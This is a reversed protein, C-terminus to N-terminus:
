FLLPQEDDAHSRTIRADDWGMAEALKAELVILAKTRIQCVRSETVSLIEGINALTLGEYYYLALIQKDRDPLTEVAQRLLSADQKKEVHDHPSLDTVDTLHVGLSHDGGEGGRSPLLDDLSQVHSTSHNLLATQVDQRTIGLREAVETDTPTRNFEKELEVIMTQVTRVNRRMDRSLWDAHRLGDLIKSKIKLTAYTRFSAKEPDFARVADLLGILGNQRVEEYEVNNPLNAYQRDTVQKVLPLHARVLADEAIGGPTPDLHYADWLTEVHDLHAQKAAAASTM